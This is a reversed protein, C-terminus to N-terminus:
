ERKLKTAKLVAAKTVGAMAVLTVPEASMEPSATTVEVDILKLLTFPAFVNTGPSGLVKLPSKVPNVAVPLEILFM